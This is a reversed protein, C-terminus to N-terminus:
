HAQLIAAEPDGSVREETKAALVASANRAVVLGVWFILLANVPHLAAIVPSTRHMAPLIVQVIVLLLLLGARRAEGSPLHGAGATAAVLIALIGVVLGGFARHPTLSTGAFLYLGILLVQVLVSAVFLWALAQHIWLIRSTGTM